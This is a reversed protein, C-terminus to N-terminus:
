LGDSELEKAAAKRYLVVKVLGLATLFQPGPDRRREKVDHVYQQTVRLDEAVAKWTGLKAKRRNLERILSDKTMSPFTAYYM